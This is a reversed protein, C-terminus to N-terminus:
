KTEDYRASTYNPVMRQLEQIINGEDMRNAFQELQKIEKRIKALNFEEPHSIFIKNHKTVKDQEKDLLIEEYLKEGRRLGTFKMEIDEGLKLGSLAILNKAIDVIKIQEGMDLIFIEGGRGMTGAQLVLQAAEPISMFYRKVEPHTVTIPGGDDIQKKFLPIVSGTSGLVNGFRVAMFKTRSVKAKAQLIMEAIRKTAGMVNTPNVAKDTSILVFREAKYHHAAYIVNRTGIINNKVAAPANEEMLPVHKHAAAHFIVQPKYESFIHKLAGIDKIDSIITKYKLEPYKTLFEVGLYYLYNEHNDLLIIMGPSFRVIQRALESGISGGGGTILIRKNKICASIEKEDIKVSERGLLDDPKVERPKVQLHGSIIKDLRPAIKIKANTMECFSLIERIVEGKESPIALIIEEIDYKFVIDPISKRGGLIKVSLISRGKKATDDDIFGLVNLGASPNNQCERLVAIGAQGAGVIIANRKKVSIDDDQYKERILRTFFRIGGILITCIMFDIIFVSRPYGLLTHRFIIVFLFFTVTSLINAVVIDRLDRISVYRWLGSNLDFLNFFLLKIIIILPITKLILQYYSDNIHFEFRIYFAAIYALVIFGINLMIVMPRRFKNILYKMKKKM